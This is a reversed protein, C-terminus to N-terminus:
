GRSRGHRDGGGGNQCAPRSGQEGGIKYIRDVGAASAAALFIKDVQEQTFVSYKKQAERILKLEAELAPVSDVPAKVKKEM